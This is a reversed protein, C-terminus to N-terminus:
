NGFDDRFIGCLYVMTKSYYGFNRCLTSETTLLPEKFCTGTEFLFLTLEYTVVDELTGYLPCRQKSGNSSM